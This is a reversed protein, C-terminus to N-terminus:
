SKGFDVYSPIHGYRQDEPPLKIYNGYNVKLYYDIDYPCPLIEGEFEITKIPILKDTEFVLPKGFFLCSVYNHEHSIDRLKRFHNIFLSDPIIKLICHLVKRIVVESYYRWPSKGTINSFKHPIKKVMFANKWLYASRIIRRQKKKDDPLYDYPFIDIWIGIHMKMGQKENEQYITGNKRIKAFLCPCGPDTEITQLFYKQELEKPCIELFHEYDSRLMGVDIDDDWPIFGKHRAAGLATGSDLFYQINHKKCIRDFEKLIEFETQQLRRLVSKEM